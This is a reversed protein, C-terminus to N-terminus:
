RAPMVSVGESDFVLTSLEKIKETNKMISEVGSFFTRGDGAVLVPLESEPIGHGETFIGIENSFEYVIGESDLYEKAKQTEEDNKGFLYTKLQM